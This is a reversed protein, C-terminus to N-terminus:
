VLDLIVIVFKINSSLKFNGGKPHDGAPRSIQCKFNVGNVVPPYSSYLIDIHIGDVFKEVVVVVTMVMALVAM